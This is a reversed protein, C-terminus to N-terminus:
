GRSAFASRAMSIPTHADQFEFAVAGGSGLEPHDIAVNVRRHIGPGFDMRIEGPLPDLMQRDITAMQAVGKGFRQGMRPHRRIRRADIGIGFLTTRGAGAQLQHLALM